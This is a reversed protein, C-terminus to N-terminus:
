TKEEQKKNHDKAFLFRTWGNAIVQAPQDNYMKCREGPECGRPKGTMLIYACHIGLTQDYAGYACKKCKEVDVADKM